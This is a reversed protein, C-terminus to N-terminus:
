ASILGRTRLLAIQMDPHGALQEMAPDDPPSVSRLPTPLPGDLSDSPQSTPRESVAAIVAGLFELLEEDQVRERDCVDNFRDLDEPKVAQDILKDLVVAGEGQDSEAGKNALAMFKYLLRKNIREPVEFQEGFFEISAM